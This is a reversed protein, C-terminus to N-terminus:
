PMTTARDLVEQAYNTQRPDTFSVQIFHFPTRLGLRIQLSILLRYLSMRLYTLRLPWLGWGLLPSFPNERSIAHIEIRTTSGLTEGRAHFGFTDAVVLTNRPVAFRLPEPLGLRRLERIDIRFAGGAGSRAALVSRRRQWALRRPTLRHSGPVYTFPGQDQAVDTLFLWAKMTPHFTDMHVSTQPDPERVDAKTEIRQVFIGPPTNCAAVYRLLRRWALSEVLRRCQPLAAAARLGLPLQQTSARGEVYELAEGRLSDVESVLAAFHEPPLFDRKILFGDRDFTEREAPTLLHALKARRHTAMQHALAVRWVHLGHRNLQVSGLIPNLAFNKRTTFVQGIWIPLAFWLAATRIADFRGTRDPIADSQPRKM